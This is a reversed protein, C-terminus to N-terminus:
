PARRLGGLSGVTEAFEGHPPSFIKKQCCLKDFIALFCYYRRKALTGDCRKLTMLVM